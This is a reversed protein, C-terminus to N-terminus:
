LYIHEVHPVNATVSFYYTAKRNFLESTAFKNGQNETGLM